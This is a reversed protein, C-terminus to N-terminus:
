CFKCLLVRYYPLLAAALQVLRKGPQSALVSTDNDDDGRGSDSDSWSQDVEDADVEQPTALQLSAPAEEIMRLAQVAGEAELQASALTCRGLTLCGLLDGLRSCCHLAAM